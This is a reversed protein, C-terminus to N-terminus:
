AAQSHGQLVCRGTALTPSFQSPLYLLLLRPTSILVLTQPEPQNNRGSQSASTPPTRRSPVATTPLPWCGLTGRKSLGATLGCFRQFFLGKGLWLPSGNSAPIGKPQLNEGADPFPWRNKNCDIRNFNSKSFLVTSIM